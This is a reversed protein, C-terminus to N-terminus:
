RFARERKDLLYFYREVGINYVTRMTYIKKITIMKKTFFLPHTIVDAGWTFV